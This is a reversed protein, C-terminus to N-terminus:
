KKVEKNWSEERKVFSDYEVEWKRRAKIDAITPPDQGSLVPDTPEDFTPTTGKEIAERAEPGCTKFLLSAHNAVAKRVEEYNAADRSDGVTFFKDELGATPAKFAARKPEQKKAVWHPKKKGEVKPKKGAEEGM